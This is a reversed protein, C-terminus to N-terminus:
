SETREKSEEGQSSTRAAKAAAPHPSVQGICADLVRLVHDLDELVQSNWFRVVRYGYQELIKTRKEDYVRADDDAHQGGDLEVILKEEECVFDAIYRDIPVQRRWKLKRFQRNRVTNWFIAEPKTQDRRLKPATKIGSM